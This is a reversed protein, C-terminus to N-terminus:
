ILGAIKEDLVFINEDFVFIKGSLSPPGEVSFPILMKSDDIVNMSAGVLVEKGGNEEDGVHGSGVRM